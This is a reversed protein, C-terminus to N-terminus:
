RKLLPNHVQSSFELCMFIGGPKLVRFAEVLAQDIHVVNRIGFAISYADFQAEEFPLNLADGVVWDIRDSPVRFEAARKKGVEIMKDNIDCVVVSSKEDNMMEKSFNLFEFAIDGTGGAVDLLKINPPPNM